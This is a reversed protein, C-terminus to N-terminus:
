TKSVFLFCFVFMSVNFCNSLGISEGVSGGLFLTQIHSDHLVIYHARLAIKYLKDHHCIIHFSKNKHDLSSMHRVLILLSINQLVMIDIRSDETSGNLMSSQPEHSHNHFILVPM